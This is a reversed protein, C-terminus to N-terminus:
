VKFLGVRSQLESSLRALDDSANSIQGIANSTAKTIHLITEMNSSVEEAAASQQESAAAIMQVMSVAKQSASVIQDLSNKADESLTVGDDVEDRGSEMSIVSKKTEDQIKEIMEAIESTAKGTREALKRVEDAVVAFGRGQEGARAAEIAANLALLNTQEAIENITKIIDGIEASSTGLEEITSSTDRVTEAIKVMGQVTKEVADKGKSALGSAEISAEASDGANKAVDIITQSMETMASAVQETQSAQEKTGRDVDEATVSLQTSSSAINDINTKIEVIMERLNEIFTNFWRALGGLEDRSEENLRKTLDGEGQAIDKLIKVTDLVRNTIVMRVLLIVGVTLLAVATVVGVAIILINNQLSNELDYNYYGIKIKGITSGRSDKIVREYVMASTGADSESYDKTIPKSNADYFVAFAVEPARALDKAFEELALYDGSSIHETSIKAMFEAMAKGRSDMMSLISANNNLAMFVGLGGLLLITLISTPVIFKKSITDLAFVKM